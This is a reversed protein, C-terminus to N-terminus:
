YFLARSKSMQINLTRRDLMPNPWLGSQMLLSFITNALAATAAAMRNGMIDSPTLYLNLFRSILSPLLLNLHCTELVLEPNVFKKEMEAHM